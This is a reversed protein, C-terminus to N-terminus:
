EKLFDRTRFNGSCTTAEHVRNAELGSPCVQASPEVVARPGIRVIRRWYRLRLTRSLTNSLGADASVGNGSPFGIGTRDAYKFGTAPVACAAPVSKTVAVPDERAFAGQPLFLVPLIAFIAILAGNPVTGMSKKM